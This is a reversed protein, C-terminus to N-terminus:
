AKIKAKGICANQMSKPRWFPVLVMKFDVGLSRWSGRPVCIRKVLRNSKWTPGNKAELMSGVHARFDTFFRELVSRAM